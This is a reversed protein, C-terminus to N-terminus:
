RTQVTIQTQIIKILEQLKQEERYRELRILGYGAVAGAIMCCVLFRRLSVKSSPRNEHGQTASPMRENERVGHRKALPRATAMSHHM